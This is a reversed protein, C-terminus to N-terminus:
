LDAKSYLHADSEGLWCGCVGNHSVSKCLIEAKDLIAKCHEIMSYDAYDLAVCASLKKIVEGMNSYFGVIAWKEESMTGANKGHKIIKAPILELLTHNWRDIEVKFKSNIQVTQNSM